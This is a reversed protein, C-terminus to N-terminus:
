ERESNNLKSTIHHTIELIGGSIHYIYKLILDCFVLLLLIRLELEEFFVLYSFFHTCTLTPKM